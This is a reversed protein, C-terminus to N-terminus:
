WQWGFSTRAVDFRAMINPKIEKDVGSGLPIKRGDPYTAVKGETLIDGFNQELVDAVATMNNHSGIYITAGSEKDGNFYTGQVSELKFYLGDVFMTEAVEREKGKEFTIHIKWGKSSFESFPSEDEETQFYGDRHHGKYYGTNWREQWARDFVERRKEKDKNFITAQLLPDIVDVDEPQKLGAVLKDVAEDVNKWDGFLFKNPNQTAVELPVIRGAAQMDEPIIYNDIPEIDMDKAIPHNVAKLEELRDKPIELIKIVGGPHKKKIYDRLSSPSDTYWGGVLQAKSVVSNPNRNESNPNEYRFLFVKERDETEVRDPSVKPTGEKAGGGGLFNDKQVAANFKVNAQDGEDEPTMFDVERVFLDDFIAM